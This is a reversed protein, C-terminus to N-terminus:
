MEIIYHHIVIENAEAIQQPTPNKPLLTQLEKIMMNGKRKNYARLEGQKQLKKYEQFNESKLQEVAMEEYLSRQLKLQKENM